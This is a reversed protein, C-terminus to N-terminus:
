KQRKRCFCCVLCDRCDRCKGGAIEVNVGAIEVNLGAIVVNKLIVQECVVCAVRVGM